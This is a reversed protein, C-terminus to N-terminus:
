VTSEEKVKSYCSRCLVKYTQEAGVLVTQGETQLMGDIFRGNMVGENSCETCESRIREVVDALEVLRKSGEFLEGKFDTMLGYAQITVGLKDVISTLEEIQKPTFFQVEDVFVMRPMFVKTMSYMAGDIDPSILNAPIRTEIARSTVYGYDRTDQTPKFVLVSKGNSKHGYYDMILNASKSANM